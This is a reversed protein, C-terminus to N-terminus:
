TGPTETVTGSFRGTITQQIAGDIAGTDELTLLTATGSYSFGEFDITATQASDLAPNASNIDKYIVITFTREARGTSAYEREGASSATDTLDVEATDKTVTMEIVGYTVANFTFDGTQLVKKTAM